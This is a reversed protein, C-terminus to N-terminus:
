DSHSLAAGEEPTVDMTGESKRLSAIFDEWRPSILISDKSLITDKVEDYRRMWTNLSEILKQGFPVSTIAGIKKSVTELQPTYRGQSDLTVFMATKMIQEPEYCSLDRSARACRSIQFTLQEHSKFEIRKAARLTLLFIAAPMLHATAGKIGSNIKTLGSSGEAQDASGLPPAIPTITEKYEITPALHPLENKGRETDTMVGDPLSHNTVRHPLEMWEDYQENIKTYRGERIIIRRMELQKVTRCVHTRAIGTLEAMQSQAIWDREKNWGWTKKFIVYLIRSEYQQLNLQWMRKLAADPIKTFPEQKHSVEKDAEQTM